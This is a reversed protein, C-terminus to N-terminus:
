GGYQLQKTYYIEGYISTIYFSINVTDSLDEDDVYSFDHVSISRDDPLIAQEVLTPFKAMIIGKSKGILSRIENGFYQDYYDWAYKETSLTKDLFQLYAERDDITGVIRQTERDIKYTKSPYTM